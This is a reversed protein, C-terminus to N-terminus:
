PCCHKIFSGAALLPSYVWARNLAQQHGTYNYYYNPDPTLSFPGEQLKFHEQYM